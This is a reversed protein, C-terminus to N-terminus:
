QAAERTVCTLKEPRERRIWDLRTEHMDQLSVAGNTLSIIRMAMDADVGTEGTEIRQFSRAGGALGLAESCGRQSKNNQIRWDRLKM